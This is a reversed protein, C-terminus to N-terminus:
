PLAKDDCAPSAPGERPVDGRSTGKTLHRKYLELTLKRFLSRCGRRRLLSCHRPFVAGNETQQKLEAEQATGPHTIELPKKSRRVGRESKLAHGSKWRTAPSRSSCWVQNWAIAFAPLATAEARGERRRSRSQQESGKTANETGMIGTIRRNTLAREELARQGERKLLCRPHFRQTFPQQRSMTPTKTKKPGRASASPTPIWPEPDRGQKQNPSRQQHQRSKSRTAHRLSKLNVASSSM